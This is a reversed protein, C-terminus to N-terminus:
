STISSIIFYFQNTLSSLNKESPMFSESNLKLTIFKMRSMHLREFLDMTMSPISFFACTSM